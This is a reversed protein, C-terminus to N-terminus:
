WVRCASRCRAETPLTVATLPALPAPLQPVALAVPVNESVERWPVVRVMSTVLEVAKAPGELALTLKALTHTPVSTATLPCGVVSGCVIVADLTARRGIGATVVAAGAGGAGGGAAAPLTVETLPEVVAPEHPVAPAVPVKASSVKLPVVTSTLTVELVDKAPVGGAVGALKAFTHTPVAAATSPVAPDVGVANVAVLTNSNVGCEVDGRGGTTAPFTVLTLPLEVLPEQPVGPPVPVIVSVVNLPAVTVASTVDLVVKLSPGPEDGLKASTHTPESAAASPVGADVGVDKVAVL